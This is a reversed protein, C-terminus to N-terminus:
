CGPNMGQTGLSLDEPRYDDVGGCDACRFCQIPSTMSIDVTEGPPLGGIYLLLHRKGCKKCILTWYAQVM